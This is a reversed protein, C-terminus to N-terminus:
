GRADQPHFLSVGAEARENLVQQKEPSGPKHKTPEAPLATSGTRGSGRRGYPSTVPYLLRVGPTRFCKWGLGRPRCIPEQGCNRCM